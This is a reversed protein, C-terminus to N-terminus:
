DNKTEIYKKFNNLVSQCFEKQMEISITKEPEFTEAVTTTDGNSIFEIVSKRGDDGTYEILQNIIVKDYKGSHDFGESGDKTEMRFLFKGGPKLDNEVRPTHWNDFPINWQMIDDPSSWVQWVSEVPKCVTVEATITISKINM